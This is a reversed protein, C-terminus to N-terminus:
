STTRELAIAAGGLVGIHEGLSSAVVRVRARPRTWAREAVLTEVRPLFQPAAGMLGGALVVLDPQYAHIATVIVAALANTFQDVVQCARGNGDRAAGFVAAVDPADLGAERSLRAIGTASVLTDACGRNGCVCPAGDIEVTFHGIQDGAPRGDVVAAGGLGTGLTFMVVNDAGQAAGFRREAALAAGADNGAFVPVGFEGFAQPLAIGAGVDLRDGIGVLTGSGSDVDGPVSLGVAGVTRDLLTSRALETATDLWAEVGASEASPATRYGTVAGDDDVVAAKFSTGGLDLALVAVM